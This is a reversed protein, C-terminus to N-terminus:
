MVPLTPTVHEPLALVPWDVKTILTTKSLVSVYASLSKLRLTHNVTILNQFNSMDLKEMLFQLAIYGRQDSVLGVYAVPHAM